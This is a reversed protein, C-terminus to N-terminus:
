HKSSFLPCVSPRWDQPIVDCRPFLTWGQLDFKAGIPSTLFQGWLKKLARPVLHYMYKWVLFGLKPLNQLTKCHFIITYKIAMKYIERLKPIKKGTKAHQVWFYRAVRSLTGSGLCHSGNRHRVTPKRERTEGLIGESWCALNRGSLGSYLFSHLCSKSSWVCILLYIWHCINLCGYIHWYTFM